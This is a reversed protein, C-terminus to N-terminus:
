AQNRKDERPTFALCVSNMCYRQGTGTPGDDFVHGLHADCQACRVEKRHMGHSFDDIVKVAKSSAVRDFSPWGTGSDFKTSSDFLLSDCVACRYEGNDHRNWHEGTFPVETGGDIAVRKLEPTLEKM